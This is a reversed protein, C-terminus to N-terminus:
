LQFSFVMLVGDCGTDLWLWKEDGFNWGNVGNVGTVTWQDRMNGPKHCGKCCDGLWMVWVVAEKSVVVMSEEVM